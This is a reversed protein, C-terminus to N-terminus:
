QLGELHFLLGQAVVSCASSRGAYTHMAHVYQYFFFFLSKLEFM